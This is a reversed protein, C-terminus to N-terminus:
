KWLKIYHDVNHKPPPLGIIAIIMLTNLLPKGVIGFNCAKQLFDVSIIEVITPPRFCKCLVTRVHDAEAGRPIIPVAGHGARNVVHKQSMSVRLGLPIGLPMTMRLVM